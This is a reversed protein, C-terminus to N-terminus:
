IQLNFSRLLVSLLFKSITSLLLIFGEAEGRMCFVPGFFSSLMSQDVVVSFRVWSRDRYFFFVIYFYHTRGCIYSFSYYHLVSLLVGVGGVVVVVVVVLLIFIRRSGVGRM